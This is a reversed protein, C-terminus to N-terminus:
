IARVAPVAGKGEMKSEAAESFGFRSARATGSGDLPDQWAGGLRYGWLPCQRDPCERVEARQNGCCELCRLRIASARTVKQGHYDIPKRVIEARDMLIGGSEM